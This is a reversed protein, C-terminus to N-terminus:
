LRTIWEVLAEQFNPGLVREVKPYNAILAFTFVEGSQGFVYGGASSVDNLTGTKIRVKNEIAPNLFRRRTTGDKGAISLSSAFEPM